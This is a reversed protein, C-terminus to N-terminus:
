ETFHCHLLTLPPGTSIPPGRIAAQKYCSGEAPVAPSLMLGALLMEPVPDAENSPAPASPDCCDGHDSPEASGHSPGPAEAAAMAMGHCNHDEAAPADQAVAGPGQPPLCLAQCLAPVLALALLLGRWLPTRRKRQFGLASM